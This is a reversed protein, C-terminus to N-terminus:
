APERRKAFFEQVDPVLLDPVELAPFHGGRDFETWHAIPHQQEALARAPLVLEHPFVAVGLPVACAIPKARTAQSEYYMRASSGATGTLWYLSINTLLWEPDITSTPDTWETFKEAIWALQGVPSDTLAYSLTQPRTAQQRMYGAPAALYKRMREVRAEDEPSLEVPERPVTPLFNVHVGVVRDPALAGVARSIISGWDGGQAGYRSYGLRDMLQVWAAAVRHIEWGASTTPGSFGFGPIAPIVLDFAHAPDGGHSRPDTLPGITGLFELVSGPWGHTLLLPLADPEPSRVHLFYIKQGDIVTTFQPLENLRAEHERWSYGTQWHAALERLYELPVGYDWGAGPLEDPWRTRALRDRLDDLDAQPVESRFPDIDSSM